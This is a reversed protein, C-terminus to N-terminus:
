RSYEKFRPLLGILTLLAIAAIAATAIVEFRTIAKTELRDKLSLIDIAENAAKAEETRPNPNVLTKFQADVGVTSLSRQINKQFEVMNINLVQQNATKYEEFAWNSEGPKTGVCLAIAAQRQGSTNLERIRKDIELYEGFTRITNVTAIREPDGFTINKLQDALFGQFQLAVFNNGNSGKAMPDALSANAIEVLTMAGSPKGVQHVKQFFAKQHQDARQSDLLYRSEDGNASYVLARAKRLYYLSGFADETAVKLYGSAASLLSVTYGLFVIAIASAALLGLNLVRRMRHYLFVQVGVLVGLLILGMLLLLSLYFVGNTQQTQYSKGLEANNVDTLQESVPLLTKDMIEAASRYAAIMQTQNGQAHFVRAQQILQFYEGLKFQMTYIPTRERDDYTINEAVAVLLKALKERRRDYEQVAAQNQGPKLLLENAANADMDALSDRIRQANLVSPAADIGITKIATRQAQITSIAVGLLLLGVAWSAILGLLMTKPTTLHETQAIANGLDVRLPNGSTHSM